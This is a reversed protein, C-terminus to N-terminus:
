ASPVMRITRILSPASIRTRRFTPTGTAPRAQFGFPVCRANAASSPSAPNSSSQSRERSCQAPDDTSPTPHATHHFRHRGLLVLDKRLSNSTAAVSTPTPRSIEAIESASSLASRGCRACAVCGDGEGGASDFGPPVRGVVGAGSGARGSASACFSPALGASGGAGASFTAGGILSFYRTPAHPWREWSRRGVDPASWRMHWAVRDCSRRFRRRQPLTACM